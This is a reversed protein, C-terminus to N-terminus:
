ASWTRLGLTAAAAIEVATDPQAPQSQQHRSDGRSTRAYDAVALTLIGIAIYGGLFLPLTLVHFPFIGIFEAFGALAYGTALVAPVIVFGNKM